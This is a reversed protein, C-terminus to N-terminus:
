RRQKRTGHTVFTAALLNLLRLDARSMGRLRKLLEPMGSPETRARAPRKRGPPTEFGADLALLEHPPVRLVRCLGRLTNLSPLMNGRELRAYVERAVGLQEAVDAQTLGQLKRATRARTGLHVGLETKKASM